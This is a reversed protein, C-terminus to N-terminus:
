KQGRFLKTLKIFPEEHTYIKTFRIHYKKFHQYLKKDNKRVMDQFEQSSKTNFNIFEQNLSCPDIFNLSGFKPPKEELKDRVIISIVEHKKALTSFNFDGFFDGILFIVAKRKIKNMLFTHLSNYNISKKLPKYNLIKKIFEHNVYTRKSPKIFDDLKDSFIYASFRDSNKIASYSLISSIEAILDQKMKKQGFYVSGSLLPVIVINLEREQAYVKVVPKQLKATVKWNIHKTDDNSTYDRLEVFEFGDGRMLTPNNGSIESFVQKKTKILIQKLKSM